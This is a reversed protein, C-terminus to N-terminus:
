PKKKLLQNLEKEESELRENIAEIILKKKSYNHKLRKNLDVHDNIQELTNQDFYLTISKEIPIEESRELKQLKDKVAQLLWDQKTGKMGPFAKRKLLHQKIRKDLNSSIKVNYGTSKTHISKDTQENSYEEM